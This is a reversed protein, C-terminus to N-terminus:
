RGYVRATRSTSGELDAPVGVQLELLLRLAGADFYTRGADAVLLGAGAAAAADLVRRQRPAESREYSLDSCLVVDFDRAADPQACLDRHLVDVQVGNAEATIGCAALAWADIDNAVVRAAGARAAAAAAVGSGAGFDLVSRGRVREPEDLLLRALAIGGAWPYAWFPAPLTSGALREAAEWVAVLSPAYPVVLESCHPVPALPAHRALLATFAGREPPALALVDAADM